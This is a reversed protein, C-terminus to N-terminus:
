YEKLENFVEKVIAIEKTDAFVREPAIPLLLDHKEKRGACYWMVVNAPVEGIDRFARIMAYENLSIELKM